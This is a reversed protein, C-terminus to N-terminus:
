RKSPPRRRGHAKTPAPPPQDASAAVFRPDTGFLRAVLRSFKMFREGQNTLRVKGDKGVVINGSKQQENIRRDIAGMGVVYGDIFARELDNPAIGTEQHREINSLLYVTVSRDVTVPLLVLFCINLSLSVAAAAVPLSADDSRRGVWAAALGTVLAAILGLVVGRYFLITISSGVGLWFLLVYIAFGLAAFVALLLTQRLYTM